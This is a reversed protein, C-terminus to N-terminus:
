KIPALPQPSPHEIDIAGDDCFACLMKELGNCLYCTGNGVCTPCYESGRRGRGGCDICKGPRESCLICPVYSFGDCLTCPVTGDPSKRAQELLREYAAYNTKIISQWQSRIEWQWHQRSAEMREGAQMRKGRDTEMSVLRDVRDEVGRLYRHREEPTLGHGPFWHIGRLMAPDLPHVRANIVEQERASSVWYVVLGYIVALGAIVYVHKKNM